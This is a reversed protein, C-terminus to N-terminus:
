ADRLADTPDVKMARRAPVYSAAIAVATLVLTVGAFTLPDTPAIGYLLRAMLHSVILAGALGLAAGAMALELGQRLVMQLINSRNAGLALRIGIEHTREGVLYSITGYIGLGALLLATLAFLLVMEMSFRRQSLAGSVVGPLTEAGFVPLEPNVSQVQVRVQDQIRAPDPKGRVFIALEKDRRQYLCRYIKPVIAAEMSETRADPVVGVVTTWDVPSRGLRIRKGLPNENPLYTRAFAENIVMVQPATENDQSELLRGRLLPIGLVQFYEPTVSSGEVLLPHSGRDESGEVVMPIRNHIHDLPISDTSGIAAQNVGPLAKARRLIERVFPAEQAATGYIDTAPDNPIPLWLRVAMVNQPDFGLRVQFLVWFSRLLLGAAVMLVLSLAFETVVLLRRTRAQDGSATACRGEAKLARALDMKGARLAPALGFLAGAVTSAALAFLLVSGDISIDNLRPLNEPVLHLLFGKACLLIALGAMGGLLSLLLSETLLQRVLRWRAAGLAQRLAMERSRASARALLLNAINVCGILLVLGVAGLLLLLPQRIDGVVSEQLPVVRVAWRDEPPYDAPYQKQLSAVLGDLRSQAVAITLGPELRAIAGPLFRTNRLPPPTPPGSFGAALWMETNRQDTSRGQDRFRAPMVGIVQYVDNDLRLSRGLIHPDAGFDRKWLGDSLVVQLTFGPTQDQPDFVRGLQPKAGLVAFYSPAVSKFLIRAPQSSGTLNVSGGGEVAVYQFIGSRQFDKWEPVSLGIDREGLGPLDDEIRVLQEPQPYSLPHLLTADVVSFIATSAGVGLAMTLIAVVAFGPSKVMMRLAFRVDQVLSELWPFVEEAHYQERIAGVAGFKLLAQRRAEVPPMGARLNEATQQALHEEIEEQLRRDGPRRVVFKALRELFRKMARM